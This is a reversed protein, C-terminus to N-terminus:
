SAHKRAGRQAAQDLEPYHRFIGMENFSLRRRSSLYAAIRPRQAVRAHVDMVRSHRPALRAMANPYAYQLGAVVQFLSLDAYTRDRGVLWRRKGQANRALAREFYALFKPIREGVFDRARLRAPAKQQEYYLSSAIPHHADHAEAVLDALTLQLQHVEFRAAEDRPVLGLRPGLYQLIAATQALVLKGARLFPPAFPLAGREKGELIRQMARMGGPRRAVDDYAVGADEFALRIFEGRGQIEPWYFLQYRVHEAM